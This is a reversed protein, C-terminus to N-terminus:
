AGGMTRGLAVGVAMAQLVTFGNAGDKGIMGLVYRLIQPDDIAENIVIANKSMFDEPDSLMISAAESITLEM